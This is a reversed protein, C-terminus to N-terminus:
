SRRPATTATDGDNTSTDVVDIAEGMDTSPATVGVSRGLVASTVLLKAFDEVREKGGRASEISLTTDLEMGERGPEAPTTGMWLLLPLADLRDFLDSCPPIM